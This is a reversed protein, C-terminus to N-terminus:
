FDKNRFAERLVKRARSLQMRVAAQQMGTLRAIEEYSRDEYEKLQIIRQQLPTLLREMMQEVQELTERQSDAPSESLALSNLAPNGAEDDDITVVSRPTKRYADIGIHRITTTAVAEVESETNLTDARTWLRAFAEQLADEADEVSPLMRMAQRLFRNRLRVFTSTLIQESM